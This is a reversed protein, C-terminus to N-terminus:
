VGFNLDFGFGLYDFKKRKSSQGDNSMPIKVNPNLSIYKSIM